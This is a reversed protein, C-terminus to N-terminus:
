ESTKDHLNTDEVFAERFVSVVQAKKGRSAVFHPM